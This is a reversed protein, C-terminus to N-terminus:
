VDERMSKDRLYVLKAILDDSWVSNYQAAWTIIRGLEIRADKRQALLTQANDNKKVVNTEFAQKSRRM